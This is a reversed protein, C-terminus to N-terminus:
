IGLTFSNSKLYIFYDNYNDILCAKMREKLSAKLGLWRDESFDIGILGRIYDSFEVLQEKTLEITRM